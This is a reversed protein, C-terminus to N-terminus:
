ANVAFGSNTSLGPTSSTAGGGIGATSAFQSLDAQITSYAQQAAALNGSQLAQGLSGFAVSIPDTQQGSGGHHHHHHHVPSSGSNQQLDQRLTAYDRQAAALNGSQLDQGLTNFAQNITNASSLQNGLANQTLLAFDSQAAALNGSQLDQGLQQFTSARGQQSNNHINSAHFLVSNLLGAAAM